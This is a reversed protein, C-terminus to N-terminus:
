EFGALWNGCLIAVDKFNVVGDCNIDGPIGSCHFEYTGIDLFKLPGVGTDVMYDIDVYRDKGDLDIYIQLTMLATGDGADICPSEPSLRYNSLNPDPNNADVFCPASNINGTGIWGGQVDSYTIVVTGSALWIEDPTDGWLICNTVFPDSEFNGIGGGRNGASNGSFTCNSVTPSGSTLNCMGGGAFSASNGIFSSNTVIPSSDYNYMGGGLNASTNNSFICNSVTLNSSENGMGGGSGATNGNFTCNKVTPNSFSNLM